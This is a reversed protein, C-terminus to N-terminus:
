RELKTIPLVWYYGQVNLGWRIFDDGVNIGAMVQLYGSPANTPEGSSNVRALLASSWYDGTPLAKCGCRVLLEDIKDKNLLILNLEGMYPLYCHRDDLIKNYAVNVAEDPALKVRFIDTSEKGIFKSDAGSIGKEQIADEVVVSGGCFFAQRLSDPSILVSIFEDQYAIGIIKERTYKGIRPDNYDVISRDKLMIGIGSKEFVPPESSTGAGIVLRPLTIKPIRLKDM